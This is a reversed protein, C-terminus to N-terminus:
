ATQAEKLVSEWRDLLQREVLQDRERAVNLLSFLQKALALGQAFNFATPNWGYLATKVINTGALLAHTATLLKALKMKGRIGNVGGPKESAHTRIGHYTRIMVEAAMPVIAMTMFHRLDYGQGYMHRILDPMQLPAGGDRVSIGTNVNVSQLVTMFPAPLGTPTFVDSFFHAFVLMLAQIPNNVSEVTGTRMEPTIVQWAGKSDILTCNGRLIDIVGFVVGLVPDHGPSMLRHMAPRLGAVESHLQANNSIDYSVKAYKEAEKSKEGLWRQFANGDGSTIIESQERMWNTVPSGSYEVGKFVTTKPIAVLFYDLLAGVLVATGVAAYDWRDWPQSGFDEDFRRYVAAAQHPRILQEFPDRDFDISHDAAYRNIDALYDDWSGDARPVQITASLDPLAERIAAREAASLELSDLLEIEVAEQETPRSLGALEYLAEMEADLESLAAAQREAKADTGGLHQQLKGLQQNLAQVQHHQALTVLEAEKRRKKDM